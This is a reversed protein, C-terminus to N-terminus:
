VDQIILRGYVATEVHNSNDLVDIHYWRNAGVDARPIFWSLLGQPSSTVTLGAGVTYTKGTADPETADRKLYATVSTVTSLDLPAGAPNLLSVSLTLDNGTLLGTVNAQVSM